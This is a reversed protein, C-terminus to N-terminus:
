LSSLPIIQQKALNKFQESVMSFDVLDVKFPLNSEEFDGQMEVIISRKIPQTSEIGIDIDSFQQENGLARSGFIFVRDKNLNLYKTLINKIITAYQQKLM